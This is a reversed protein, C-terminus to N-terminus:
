RGAGGESQPAPDPEQGVLADRAFVHNEGAGAAATRGRQCMGTGLQLSVRPEQGPKADRAFVHNEGAGAGGSRPAANACGQALQRSGFSFLGADRPKKRNIAALPKNGCLM